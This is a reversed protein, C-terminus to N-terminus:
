VSAGEHLDMVWLECCISWQSLILHSSTRFKQQFLGEVEKMTKMLGQNQLKNRLNMKLVVNTDSELFSFFIYKWWYNAIWLWFKQPWFIFSIHLKLIPKCFFIFCQTVAWDWKPQKEFNLLFTVSIGAITPCM